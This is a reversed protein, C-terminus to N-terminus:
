AARPPLETPWIAKLRAPSETSLDVTQPIDRLTQKKAAITGQAEVDGGEIARMYPVDLAALETNRVTRIADMQIAMAKTMNVKPSRDRWEWADFFYEEPLDSSEVVWCSADSAIVGTEKNRSIVYEILAEETEYRSLLSQNPTIRMLNYPPNTNPTLILKM